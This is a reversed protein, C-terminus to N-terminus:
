SNADMDQTTHEGNEVWTGQKLQQRTCSRVPGRASSFSLRAQRQSRRGTWGQRAREREREGRGALWGYPGEAPRETQTQTETETRRRRGDLENRQLFKDHGKNYRLGNKRNENGNGSDTGM